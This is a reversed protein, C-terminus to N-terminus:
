RRYLNITTAYTETQSCQISSQDLKFYKKRFAITASTSLIYIVRHYKHLIILVNPLYRHFINTDLTLWKLFIYFRVIMSFVRLFNTQFLRNFKSLKQLYSTSITPCEYNLWRLIERELVIM